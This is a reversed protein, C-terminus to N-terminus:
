IALTEHSVSFTFLFTGVLCLDPLCHLGIGCIFPSREAIIVHNYTECQM